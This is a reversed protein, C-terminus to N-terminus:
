TFTADMIKQRRVYMGLFIEVARHPDGPGHVRAVNSSLTRVHVDNAVNIWSTPEM